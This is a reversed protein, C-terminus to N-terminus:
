AMFNTRSNKTIKKENDPKPFVRNQCCKETAGALQWFRPIVTFSFSVMVANTLFYLVGFMAGTKSGLKRSIFYFGRSDIVGNTCIATM